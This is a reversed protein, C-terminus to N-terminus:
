VGLARAFDAWNPDECGSAIVVRADPRGRLVQQAFELGSGGPMSMDTLVLDFLAPNDNFIRLAEPANSCAQMSHGMQSLRQVLLGALQMDDDLYLIQGVFGARWPMNRQSKPGVLM